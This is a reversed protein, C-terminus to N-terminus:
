DDDTEALSINAIDTWGKELDNSDGAAETDELNLDQSQMMSLRKMLITQNEALQLAQQSSLMKSKVLKLLYSDSPHIFPGRKKRDLENLSKLNQLLEKETLLLSLERSKEAFEFVPLHTNIHNSYILKQHFLLYLSSDLLHNLQHHVIKKLFQVLSGSKLTVAYPRDIDYHTLLHAFNDFDLDDIVILDPNLQLAQDLRMSFDTSYTIPSILSNIDHHEWPNKQSLFCIHRQTKINAMNVFGNLTHSKGSQQSGSFIIMGKKFSAYGDLFGTNLNKSNPLESSMPQFHLCNFHNRRYIFLKYLGIGKVSYYTLFSKESQFTKLDEPSLIKKILQLIQENNLTTDASTIAKIQGRTKIYIAKEASIYIDTAQSKKAASLIEKFTM